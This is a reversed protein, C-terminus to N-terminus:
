SENFSFINVLGEVEFDRRMRVHFEFPSVLCLFSNSAISCFLLILMASIESVWKM